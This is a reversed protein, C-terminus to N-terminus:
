HRHLSGWVMAMSPLPMTHNVAWFALMTPRMSGLVPSTLSTVEGVGL